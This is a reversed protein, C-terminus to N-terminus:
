NCAQCDGERYSVPYRHFINESHTWTEVECWKFLLFPVFDLWVHSGHNNVWTYMIEYVKRKIRGAGHHTEVDIKSHTAIEPRQTHQHL